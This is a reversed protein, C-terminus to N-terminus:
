VIRAEHYPNSFEKLENGEFNMIIQNNFINKKKDYFTQMRKIYLGKLYRNREYDGLIM